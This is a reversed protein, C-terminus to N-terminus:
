RLVAFVLDNVVGSPAADMVRRVVPDGLFYAALIVLGGNRLRGGFHAFLESTRAQQEYLVYAVALKWVVLVLVEWPITGVPVYGASRTLGLAAAFSASGVVASAIWAYTERRAPAGLAHANLAFWPWALWPGGLMLGLLPWLPRVAVRSITSATPEDIIRYRAFPAM